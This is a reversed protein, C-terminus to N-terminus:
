PKPCYHVTLNTKTRADSELAHVQVHESTSEETKALTIFIGQPPLNNPDFLEEPFDDAPVTFRVAVEQELPAGNVDLARIAGSLDGDPVPVGGDWAKICPKDNDEPCSLCRFTSAGNLCKNGDNEGGKWADEPRPRLLLLNPVEGGTRTISFEVEIEVLAAFPILIQEPTVLPKKEFRAAYIIAPKEGDTGIFALPMTGVDGFNRNNCPPIPDFPDLNSAVDCGNINGPGNVFFTDEVANLTITQPNDCTNDWMAEGSTSSGSSEDPGTSSADGTPGVGTTTEGGSSTTTDPTGTTPDPPAGTSTGTGPVPESDGQSDIAKFGPNDRWCGALVMGGALVLCNRVWREFAHM